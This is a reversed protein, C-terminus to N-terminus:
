DAFNGGTEVCLGRKRTGSWMYPHSKCRLLLLSVLIFSLALDLALSLFHSSFPWLGFIGKAKVGESM